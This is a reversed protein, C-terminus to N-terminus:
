FFRLQQLRHCSSPLSLQCPFLFSPLLFLFSSLSFLSSPLPFLLPPKSISVVFIMGTYRYTNFSLDGITGAVDDLSDIDAAELISAVSFIDREGKVGVSVFSPCVHGRATYAHCPDIAAGSSTTLSGTMESASRSLGLTPVNMSHDVYLTFLSVDGVPHLLLPSVLLTCFHSSPSTLFLRVLVSVSSRRQLPPLTVVIQHPSTTVTRQYLRTQRM